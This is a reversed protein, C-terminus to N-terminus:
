RESLTTITMTQNHLLCGGGALGPAIEGNSYFGTLHVNPGLTEAVAEIEEDTREGMVLKRGVCSILVALTHADLAPPGSTLAHSAAGEAGHVLLDTSAQMLWVTSGLEVDGALILSGEAENIGLITRILDPQQPDASQMSLPFLLGAAPLDAAHDGLYRKYITLAPENDLTYLVSGEARTVRRAPGFPMWGGQSGHGLQLQDGYFGVAVLNRDSVGDPGLTYTRVFAGGDAAMGGSVAVREGLVDTMGKLLATGNFDVGPALVLVGRLDPAQLQRAVAEGAARSELAHPAVASATRMRSHELSLTTLHGSGEDVGHRGIEGASSCGLLLAQPFRAQLRNLLEPHTILSLDAFLLVLQATAPLDPCPDLQDLDRFVFQNIRATM